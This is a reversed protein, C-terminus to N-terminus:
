YWRAGFLSVKAAALRNLCSKCLRQGSSYDYMARVSKECSDCWREDALNEDWGPTNQM